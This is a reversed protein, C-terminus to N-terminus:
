LAQRARGLEFHPVSIINELLEVPRGSHDTALHIVTAEPFRRRYDNAHVPENDFAALLRGLSELQAHAARKFEDDSAEFTPKMILHVPGAAEGPVALGCKRMAEVSGRRMEEHRGTVYALQVGTEVARRVFEAAGPIEIDDVCYESTFFRAVWFHKAEPYSREAEERSLGCRVLAAKLDWGSGAFHRAECAAVGAHGLQAGFERLIRAQRPRNDFLTSDLDFALVGTPGAEVSRQLIEELVGQWGDRVLHSLDSM